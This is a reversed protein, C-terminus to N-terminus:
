LQKASVTNLEWPKVLTRRITMSSEHIVREVKALALNGCNTVTVVAGDYPRGGVEWFADLKVWEYHLFEVVESSSFGSQIFDTNEIAAAVKVDGGFNADMRLGWKRAKATPWTQGRSTWRRVTKM